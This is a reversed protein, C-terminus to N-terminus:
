QKGLNTLLTSKLNYAVGLYYYCHHHYTTTTTTTMDDQPCLRFSLSPSYFVFLTEQTSTTSAPGSILCVLNSILFFNCIFYYFTMQKNTLMIMEM